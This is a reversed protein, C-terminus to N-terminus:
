WVSASHADHDAGSWELEKKEAAGKLGLLLGQAAAGSAQM